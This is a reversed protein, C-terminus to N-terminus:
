VSKTYFLFFFRENFHLFLLTSLLLDNKMDLNINKTTDKRKKLIASM